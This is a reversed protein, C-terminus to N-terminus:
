NQSMGSTGCVAQVAATHRRLMWPVAHIEDRKLDSDLLNVQQPLFVKERFFYLRMKEMQVSM